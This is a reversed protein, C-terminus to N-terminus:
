IVDHFVDPCLNGYKPKMIKILLVKLWVTNSDKVNSESKKIEYWILKMIKLFHDLAVQVSGM